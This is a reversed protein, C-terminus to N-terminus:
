RSKVMKGGTKGQVVRVCIDIAVLAMYIGIKLIDGNNAFMTMVTYKGDALGRIMNVSRGTALCAVVGFTKRETCCFQKVVTHHPLPLTTETVITIYRGTFCLIVYKGIVVATRTMHDAGPIYAVKVMAQHVSRCTGSCAAVTVQFFCSGMRNGCTGTLKAVCGCTPQGINRRQIMSMNNATATIGSTVVAATGAATFRLCMWQGSIQTLDAVADGSPQGNRHRHIMRLHQFGGTNACATMADAFFYLSMRGGTIFTMDTM